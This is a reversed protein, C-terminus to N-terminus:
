GSLSCDGAYVWTEGAGPIIRHIRKGTFRAATSRGDTVPLVGDGGSALMIAPVSLTPQDKKVQLAAYRSNGAVLGYRSRYSHIVIDM